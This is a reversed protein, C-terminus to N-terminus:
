SRIQVHRPESRPRDSVHRRRWRQRAGPRASPDRAQAASPSPSRFAGRSRGPYWGSGLGLHPRMGIGSQLEARPESEYATGPECRSRQRVRGPRLGWVAAREPGLWSGQLHSGPCLSPGRGGARARPDAQVRVRVRLGFRGAARVRSKRLREPPRRGPIRARGSRPSRNWARVAAKTKLESVSRLESGLELVSEPESGSKIASADRPAQVGACSRTRVPVHGRSAGRHRGSASRSCGGSRPERPCWGAEQM